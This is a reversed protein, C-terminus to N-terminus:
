IGRAVGPWLVEEFAADPRGYRINELISGSFLFSEQAVMGIQGRLDELRLQRIDTGDIALKGQDVDYLSTLWGSQPDLTLRLHENEITLPNDSAPPLIGAGVSTSPWTPADEPFSLHYCRYGLAPLDAQFAVHM